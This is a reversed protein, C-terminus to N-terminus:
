VRIQSSCEEHSAQKRGSRTASAKSNIILSARLSEHVQDEGTKRCFADLLLDELPVFAVSEEGCDETKLLM